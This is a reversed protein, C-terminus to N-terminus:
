AKLEVVISRDAGQNVGSGATQSWLKIYRCAFVEPPLKVCRDVAVTAEVLTGSDDYLPLFTGGSDYCSQIGISAATWAAPMYINGASQETMDIAESLAAGNAITVTQVRTERISAM